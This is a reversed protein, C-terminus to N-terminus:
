FPCREVLGGCRCLALQRDASFVGEETQWLECTRCYWVRDITDQIRGITMDGDLRVPERHLIPEDISTYMTGM